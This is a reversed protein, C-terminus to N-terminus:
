AYRLLSNLVAKLLTKHQIGRICNSPSLSAIISSIDVVLLDNCLFISRNCTLKSRGGVGAIIDRVGLAVGSVDWHGIMGQLESGIDESCLLFGDILVWESCLISSLFYLNLTKIQALVMGEFNTLSSSGRFHILDLFNASILVKSLLVMSQM